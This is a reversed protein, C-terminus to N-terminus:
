WQYSDRSGDRGLFSSTDELTLRLATAALAGASEEPTIEAHKGGMETKVWGPSIAVVTVGKPKLEAAMARTLMNLAAKSTSYAYYNSEDKGSISGAGSSMNLIRPDEAEMLLPLYARVMRLAGLVNTEFAERFHQLSITELSEDGEEPFVGANNFLIDLNGLSERVPAVSDAVSEDSAIDIQVLSVSDPHVKALESLEDAHQRSRCGAVVRHGLSVFERVLALGIGRNAGTVLINMRKM